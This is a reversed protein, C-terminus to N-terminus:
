TREKKRDKDNNIPNKNSTSRIEEIQRIIEEAMPSRKKHPLHKPEEKYHPTRRFWSM